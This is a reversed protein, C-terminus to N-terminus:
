LGQEMWVDSSIHRLQDPSIDINHEPPVPRRCFLEEFEITLPVEPSATIQAGHRSITISQRITPLYCPQHHPLSGVADSFATEFTINPTKPNISVILLLKVDGRSNTLWWEADAKLKGYSESDGVEVAVTPWKADRGPIPQSLAWSEDAEKSSSVGRVRASGVVLISRHLSMDRVVDQVECFLGRSAVQHVGTVLKIIMSRTDYSFMSRASSSSFEEAITPPVNTFHLYKIVEIPLNQQQRIIRRITNADSGIAEYTDDPLEQFCKVAPSDSNDSLDSHRPM